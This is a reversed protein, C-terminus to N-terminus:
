KAMLKHVSYKLTLVRKAITIVKRYISEVLTELTATPPKHESLWLLMLLTLYQHQTFLGQTCCAKLKMGYTYPSISNLAELNWPDPRKCLLITMSSGTQPTKPHKRMLAGPYNKCVSPGLTQNMGIFYICLSEMSPFLAQTTEFVIVSRVQIHFHGCHWWLTM